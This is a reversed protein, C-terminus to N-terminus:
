LCLCCRAAALYPLAKTQNEGDKPGKEGKQKGKAIVECPEPYIDQPSRQKRLPLTSKLINTGKKSGPCM